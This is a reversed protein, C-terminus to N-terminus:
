QQRVVAVSKRDIVALDIRRRGGDGINLDDFRQGSFMREADFQVATEAGLRGAGAEFDEAVATRDRQGLAHRHQFVHAEADDILAGVVDLRLVPGVDPEMVHRQFAGDTFASRALREIEIRQPFLDLSAEEGDHAAAGLIVAIVRQHQRGPQDPAVDGQDARQRAKQALDAHRKRLVIHPRRQALMGADRRLDDRQKVGAEVRLEADRASSRAARSAAM